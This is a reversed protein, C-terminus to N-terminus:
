GRLCDVFNSHCFTCAAKAEHKQSTWVCLHWSVQTQTLVPDVLAEKMRGLNATTSDQYGILAQLM